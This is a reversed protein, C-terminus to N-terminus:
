QWCTKRSVNTEDNMIINSRNYNQQFSLFLSLIFSTFIFFLIRFINTYKRHIQCYIYILYLNYINYKIQSPEM